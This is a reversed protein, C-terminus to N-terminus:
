RRVILAYLMVLELPSTRFADDKLLGAVAYDHEFVSPRGPRVYVTSQAPSHPSVRLVADRSM